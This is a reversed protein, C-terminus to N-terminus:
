SKTTFLQVPLSTLKVWELFQPQQWSLPNELFINTINFNRAFSDLYALDNLLFSQASFLEKCDFINDHFSLFYIGCDHFNREFFFELKKKVPEIENVAVLINKNFNQRIPDLIAQLKNQFALRNNKSANKDTNETYFYNLLVAFKDTAANLDAFFNRRRSDAIKPSIIRPNKKIADFFKVPLSKLNTREFFNQGKASHIFVVNVGRNDFFEPAFDKIGWADGITIDAKTNPFKFHCTQCSPRESLGSLFLKGFLNKSNSNFYRVRDFFNIEMNSSWGNRKSRFNVSAIDNRNALETLYIEWVLPSPVGHCVIEVSLLNDPDSGLFQKLGACQCPTGSFLVSKVKLADRVQQYVDGIKSQVYKSSRLKELEDPNKASTHEVRWNKDFSAGFVIGGDHFIIESLASFVGGASSHRLIKDDPHTAVFVLPLATPIKEKFNLAPCVADCRGCKICLTDNIKPYAFGEADRVMKIAKKPCINACAECGTCDAGNVAIMEEIKM